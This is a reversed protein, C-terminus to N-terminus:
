DMARKLIEEPPLIACKTCIPIKVEMKGKVITARYEANEEHCVGCPFFQPQYTHWKLKEVTVQM